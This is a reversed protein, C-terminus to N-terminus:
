TAWASRSSTRYILIIRCGLDEQRWRKLALIALAASWAWKAGWERGGMGKERTGIEKRENAKPDGDKKRPGGM